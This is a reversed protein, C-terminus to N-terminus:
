ERIVRRLFAGPVQSGDGKLRSRTTANIRRPHKLSKFLAVRLGRCGSMEASPDPPSFPIPLSAPRAPRQKSINLSQHILSGPPALPSLAPARARARAHSVIYRM